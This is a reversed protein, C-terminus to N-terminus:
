AEGGQEQARSRIFQQMAVEDVRSAEAHLLDQRWEELRKERLLEVARRATAAHMLDLRAREVRRYAGALEMAAQRAMAELHLSAGAQARVEPIVVMVGGSGGEAAWGLRSRLDLKANQIDHQCQRLKTEVVIRERELEAVRLQKEQEVRERQDLVPQLRFLFKTAM